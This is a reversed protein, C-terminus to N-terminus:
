LHLRYTGGFTPQFEVSQVADYGLLHYEEYDGSHFGLITCPHFEQPIKPHQMILFMM